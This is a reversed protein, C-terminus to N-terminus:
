HVSVSNGRVKKKTLKPYLYYDGNDSFDSANVRKIGVLKKELTKDKKYGPLMMTHVISKHMPEALTKHYRIVKQNPDEEALAKNIVQHKAYHEPLIDGRKVILNVEWGAAELARKIITYNNDGNEDEIYYGNVDGYINALKKFHRNEYFDTFQKVVEIISDNSYEYFCNLCALVNGLDQWTSCSHFNKNFDWSMDLPLEVLEHLPDLGRDDNEYRHHKRYKKYFSKEGMTVPLNMYQNHWIGPFTGLYFAKTENIRDIGLVDANDYITGEIYFYTSPDKEQWTKMNPVWSGGLENSQNSFIGISLYLSSEYKGVKGRVMAFVKDFLTKENLEAAEVIVGWDYSGGKQNRMQQSIIEITCGDPFSIVNTYNKYKNVRKFGKPPQTGVVFDGMPNEASYESMEISEWYKIVEPVEKTLLQTLDSGYMFGKSGPMEAGCDNMYDSEILTKGSGRGGMYTKIRQKAQKWQIQKNNLYKQKQQVEEDVTEALLLETIEKV